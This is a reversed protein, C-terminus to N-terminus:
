FGVNVGLLITRAQPYGGNDVGFRMLDDHALEPDAGTYNTFTLLNQGSVYVRLRSLHMKELVNKNFSYGVQLNKLRMYSGNEVHVMDNIKSFNGNPDALSLAPYDNTSGEGTWHGLARTSMNAYAENNNRILNVIDYGAQGQFFASFDWQKYNMNLTFGYNWKPVANSIQTRDDDDIKGDGNIDVYRIDGPKANPQILEGESNRHDNVENENQFIGNTKYGFMFPMPYGVEVRNKGLMTGYLNNTPDNFYGEQNELSLMENKNYSGNAIIDFKFDGVEETFRLDLEVGKNSVSGINALPSSVGAFSPIPMNFLLDRTIKDYYEATFTLKNRFFGLDLGFNLTESTEWKLDPNAAQLPAFGQVMLDNIQYVESRQIASIYGWDGIRDNGVQGWSARIKALSFTNYDFDFFDENSINWGVSVSPFTGFRNNEGFRTSGDRRVTATAMYRENYNYSVRGFFSLMRNRNLMSEVTMNEKDGNSAWAFDWDNPYIGATNTRSYYNDSNLVTNGAIISFDHAGITKQYSLVNEWQLQLNQRTNNILSNKNATHFSTLYYIPNFNRSFSNTSNIGLDTKFKLGPLANKLDFDLYVNGRIIRTNYENFTRAAMGIPNTVQNINYESQGYPYGADNLVSNPHYSAIKAPDTEVVPTIPDYLYSMFLPGGASKENVNSGNDFVVTMNEGFTITKSLKHTSNLRFNYRNYFSKDGGMVIGEQGFYALAASFSSVDNGGTFGVAHNTIPATVFLEDQWNTDVTNGAIQADTFKPENGDWISATNIANMYQNANMMDVQKWPSQLGYYGDYTVKLNGKSGQKTTILVVGNAGRAGYIAASAADKLVEMSQIDNPSLYSIDTLQLGDVIYLPNSNGNTGIGRVKVNVGGGPAGSNMQVMVGSTRGQLAQSADSIPTAEIEEPKVSAIAGTVVSKKQVGYGVVVLEELETVSSNLQVHIQSQNGVKIEQDQYGVFSFMLIDEPSVQIQYNGNFDTIVGKATGKIQINVGPIPEQDDGTVVGSVVNQAMLGLPVCLYFLVLLLTKLSFNQM